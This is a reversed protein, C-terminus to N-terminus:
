KETEAEYFSIRQIKGRRGYREDYSVKAYAYEADDSLGYVAWGLRTNDGNPEGIKEILDGFSHSSSVAEEIQSKTLERDIEKYVYTHAGIARADFSDYNQFNGRVFVKSTDVTYDTDYEYAYAEESKLYFFEIGVCHPNESNQYCAGISLHFIEGDKEIEASQYLYAPDMGESMGGWSSTECGAFGGPYVALFDDIQKDLAQSAQINETFMLRIAEKDGADAAELFAEVADRKASSDYVHSNIWEDRLSDWEAQELTNSIVSFVFVALFSVPLALFPISLILPIKSAKEGRKKKKIRMILYVILLVAGILFLAGLIAFVVAAMGLLAFTFAVGM